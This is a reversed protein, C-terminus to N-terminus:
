SLRYITQPAQGKIPVQELVEHGTEPQLHAFTAADLVIQGPGALKELRAALNVPSGIATYEMRDAAGFNGVVADGTAIGIGLGIPHGGLAADHPRVFTAFLAQLKRATDVARQADDKGTLPAGFLVMIGDGLFKDLTGGAQFIVRTAQTFWDNLFRCTIELPLDASLSTFGRLDAM